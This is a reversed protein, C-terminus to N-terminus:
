TSEAPPPTGRARDARRGRERRRGNGGQGDGRGGGIRASSGSRSAPWARRGGGRTRPRGAPGVALTGRADGDRCLVARIVRERAGPRALVRVSAVMRGKKGFSPDPGRGAGRGDGAATSASRSTRRRRTTWRSSCVGIAEERWAGGGRAPDLRAGAPRQMRRPPPPKRLRARHTRHAREARGPRVGPRPAPPNGSRDPDGARRGAGDHFTPIGPPPPRDGPRCRCGATRPGSRDAGSPSRRAPGPSPSSPTSSGRPASSTRSPTGHGSRPHFTADEIAIGHVEAEAEALVSFIATARERSRAQRAREGPAM